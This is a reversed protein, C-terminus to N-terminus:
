IYELTAVADLVKEITDVHAVAPHYYVISDHNLPGIIYIAAPTGALQQATIAASLEGYMFKGVHENSSDLVYVDAAVVGDIDAKARRGAELPNDRKVGLTDTRTWDHTIFHGSAEIKAFIDRIEEKHRLSGSVFFGLSRAM